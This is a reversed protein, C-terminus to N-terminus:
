PQEALHSNREFYLTKPNGLRRFPLLVDLFPVRLGGLIARFRDTAGDRQLPSPTPSLEAELRAFDDANLQFRAPLLVIATDAGRAAASDIIERAAEAAVAFGHRVDDPPAALYSDMPRDRLPVARSPGLLAVVGARAQQVLLCRRSLRRLWLPFGFRGGPNPAAVPARGPYDDPNALLLRFEADASEVADNGAYVMLLVLDPEVVDPLQELFLYQEVTGYGQVGANIIRYRALGAAAGNLREELVHAFTEESPVQVALTMSDGLVLIRYEGPPKPGVEDDRLGISNTSVETDFETTQYRITTDPRLRYGIRDDNMFLDRFSTSFQGESTIRLGFELAVLVSAGSLAMATLRWAWMRTKTM